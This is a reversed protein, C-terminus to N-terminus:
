CPDIKWGKGKSHDENTLDNFILHSFLSFFTTLFRWKKEERWRWEKCPTLSTFFIHFYITYVNLNIDLCSLSLIVLFVLIQTKNETSNPSLNILSHISAPPNSNYNIKDTHASYNIKCNWNNSNRKFNLWRPFFNNHNLIIM